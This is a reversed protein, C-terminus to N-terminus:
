KTEAKKESKKTEKEIKEVKGKASVSVKDGVKLVELLKAEVKVTKEEKKGKVTIECKEKDINTIEGRFVKAKPTEKSSAAKTQDAAKTEEAIAAGAFLIAAAFVALVLKKM